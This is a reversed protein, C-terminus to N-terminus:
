VDDQYEKVSIGKYLERAVINPWLLCLFHNTYRDLISKTIRRDPRRYSLDPCAAANSNATSNECGLWLREIIDGAVDVGGWGDLGVAQEVPSGAVVM